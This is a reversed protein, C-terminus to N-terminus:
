IKEKIRKILENELRSLRDKLEPLDSIQREGSLMLRELQKTPNPTIKELMEGRTVARENCLLNATQGCAWNVEGLMNVYPFDDSAFVIAVESNKIMALNTFGRGKLMDSQPTLCLRTGYMALLSLDDKDLYNGGLLTCDRDLFGLDELLRTPTVGYLKDLTGLEELSRGFEILLPVKKQGSYMSLEQLQNESYNLLGKIHIFICKEYGEFDEINGDVVAKGSLNYKSLADLANKAYHCGLNVEKVGALLNKIAGYECLLADEEETIAVEQKGEFHCNLFSKLTDYYFNKFYLDKAQM